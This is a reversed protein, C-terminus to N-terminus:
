IRFGTKEKGARQEVTSRRLIRKEEKEIGGEKGGEEITQRKRIRSKKM